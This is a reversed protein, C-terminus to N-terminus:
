YCYMTLSDGFSSLLQLLQSPTFSYVQDTIELLSDHTDPISSDLSNSLSTTSYINKMQEMIEKLKLNQGFEIMFQNNEPIMSPIAVAATAYNLKDRGGRYVSKSWIRQPEAPSVLNSLQIMLYPIEIPIANHLPFLKFSPNSTSTSNSNRIADSNQNPNM